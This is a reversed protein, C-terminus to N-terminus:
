AEILKAKMRNFEHIHSLVEFAVHALRRARARDVLQVLEV